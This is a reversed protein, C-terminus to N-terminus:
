RRFLLGGPAGVAVIAAVAMGSYALRNILM